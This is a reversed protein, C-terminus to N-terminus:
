NCQNLNRSPRRHRKNIRGCSKDTTIRLSLLDRVQNKLGRDFEGVGKGVFKGVENLTPLCIRSKRKQKLGKDWRWQNFVHYSRWSYFIYLRYIMFLGFLVTITIILVKLAYQSGSDVPLVRMIISIFLICILYIFTTKMMKKIDQLMDNRYNLKNTKSRLTIIDNQINRLEKTRHLYSSDIINDKEDDTDKKVFPTMNTNTNTNNIKNKNKNSIQIPELQDVVISYIKTNKPLNYKGAEYITRNGKFNTKTFLEVRFGNLINMSRIQDAKGDIVPNKSESLKTEIGVFNPESYFKAGIIKSNHTELQSRENEDLQINKELKNQSQQLQTNTNNINSNVTTMTKSIPMNTTTTIQKTNPPNITDRLKNVTEKQENLLSEQLRNIEDNLSDIQMDNANKSTTTQINKEPALTTENMSKILNQQTELLTKIMESNTNQQATNQNLYDNPNAVGPNLTTIPAITPTVIPAVTPLITPSLTTTNEIPAVTPLITPSLTTTNSMNNLDPPLTIQSNENM